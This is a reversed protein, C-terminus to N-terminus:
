SFMKPLPLKHYTIWVCALYGFNLTFSVYLVQDRQCCRGNGSRQQDATSTGHIQQVTVLSLFGRSNKKHLSLPLRINLRDCVSM